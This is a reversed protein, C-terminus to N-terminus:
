KTESRANRKQVVYLSNERKVVIATSVSSNGENGDDGDRTSLARGAAAAEEEEERRRHRAGKPVREEPGVHVAEQLTESRGGCGGVDNM